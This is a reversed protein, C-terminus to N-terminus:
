RRSRGATGRKRPRGARKPPAPPLMAMGDAIVAWTHGLSAKFGSVVADVVGRDLPNDEDPVERGYAMGSAWSLAYVIELPHLRFEPDNRAAEDLMAMLAGGVASAKRTSPPTKSSEAM